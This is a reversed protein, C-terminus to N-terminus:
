TPKLPMEGHDACAVLLFTTDAFRTTRHHTHRHESTKKHLTRSPTPIPPTRDVRHRTLDAQKTKRVVDARRGKGVPM